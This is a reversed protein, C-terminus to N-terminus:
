LEEIGVQGELRQEAPPREVGFDTMKRLNSLREATAYAAAVTMKEERGPQGGVSSSVATSSDVSDLLTPNQRISRALRDTVGFGLGHIHADPAAVRLERAAEVKALATEDKLGGIAWLVDGDASPVIQEYCEVHPSQLPLMLRGDFHHEDALELGDLLAGVTADMDQYVDALVAVDAGLTAAQDLVDRNTVSDDKFNSDLAFMDSKDVYAPRLEPSKAKMMRWPWWARAGDNGSVYYKVPSARVLRNVYERDIM